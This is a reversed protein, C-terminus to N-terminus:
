EQYSKNACLRSRQSICFIYRNGEATLRVQNPVPSVQTTKILLEGCSWNLQQSWSSTQMVRNTFNMYLSSQDIPCSASRSLIVPPISALVNLDHYSTSQMSCSTRLTKVSSLQRQLATISNLNEGRGAPKRPNKLDTSDASLSGRRVCSSPTVHLHLRLDGRAQSNNTM